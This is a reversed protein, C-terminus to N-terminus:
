SVGSLDCLKLNKFGGVAILNKVPCFALSTISFEEASSTFINTGQDDWIKYKHDEGSSVIVNNEISWAICLVLGEHAKWQFVMLNLNFSNHNRSTMEVKSLKSNAALPKIAINGGQCFAIATSNPSWCACIIPENSQVVTSRLMGSRSWIKIVGDESATSSYHM